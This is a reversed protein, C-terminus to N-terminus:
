IQSIMGCSVIKDHLMLLINKLTLYYTEIREQFSYRGITKSASKIEKWGKDTSSWKEHSSFLVIPYLVQDLSNYPESIKHSLWNHLFLHLFSTQFYFIRDVFFLSVFSITDQNEKFVM